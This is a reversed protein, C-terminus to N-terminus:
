SRAFTSQTGASSSAGAPTPELKKSEPNIRYSEGTRMEGAALEVTALQARDFSADVYRLIDHPSLTVDEPAYHVHVIRGSQEDYTVYTKM